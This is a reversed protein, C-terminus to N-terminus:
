CPSSSEALTISSNAVVTTCDAGGDPWEVRIRAQSAEDIGFLLPGAASQSRHNFGDTVQRRYKRAGTEVRIRAGLGWPNQPPGDLHLGVWNGGDSVNRLLTMPGTSKNSEGFGNSVLVDSRGDSDYDAVSVSDGNGDRPGRFSADRVEVFKKGKAVLLFDPRNAGAEAPDRGRAGQVVFLDLDGDNELDLWASTRGDKVRRRDIERFVGEDNRLVLSRSEDVLHLDPWGDGDYDGWAGSRWRKGVIGRVSVREFEGRVNRYTLPADDKRLVLLDPDGDRDWDSWSSSVTHLSQGVGVRAKDFGASVNEFMVNGHESRYENGVFIDLDGDLDYDIWDVTRGRGKANTVGLEEARDIFGDASETFLQNHGEGKGHEAGLSCYLDPLGDGDAEGWACGHRDTHPPNFRDNEDFKVFSGGENIWLRPQWGHRNEFLDADGDLDYDGWVSGWSRSADVSLGARSTADEFPFLRGSSGLSSAPRRDRPDTERGGPQAAHTTVQTLLVAVVSLGVAIRFM